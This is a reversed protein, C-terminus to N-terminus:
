VGGSSYRIVDAPDFYSNGLTVGVDLAFLVDSNADIQFDVLNVREPLGPIQIRVRTGALNDTVYDRRAAYQSPGVINAGTDASYHLALIPLTDARSLSAALLSIACVMVSPARRGSDSAAPSMVVQQLFKKM